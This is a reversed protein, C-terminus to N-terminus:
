KQQVHSESTERKMKKRERRGKSLSDRRPCGNRYPSEASRERKKWLRRLKGREEWYM